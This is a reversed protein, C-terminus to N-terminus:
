IFLHLYQVFFSTKIMNEEGHNVMQGIRATEQLNFSNEWKNSHRAFHKSPAETFM